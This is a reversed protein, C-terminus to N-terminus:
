SDALLLLLLLLENIIHLIADGRDVESSTQSLPIILAACSKHLCSNDGISSLQPHSSTEPTIVPRPDPVVPTAKDLSPVGSEARKPHSSNQLIDDVHRRWVRGDDLHVQCSHSSPHQAMIGPQWRQESLHDRALVTNGVAIERFKANKDHHMKMKSVPSM